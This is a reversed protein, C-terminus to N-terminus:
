SKKWKLFLPNSYFLIKIDPKIATPLKQLTQAGPTIISMNGNCDVECSGGQQQARDKLKNKYLVQPFKQRLCYGYFESNQCVLKELTATDLFSNDSLNRITNYVLGYLASKDQVVKVLKDKDGKEQSYSRDHCGRM